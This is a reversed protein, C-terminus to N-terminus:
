ESTSDPLAGDEKRADSSLELGCEPCVTGESRALDYRCRPCHPRPLPYILRALSGALAIVLVGTGLFWFGLLIRDSSYYLDLPDGAIFRRIWSFCFPVALFILILGVIRLIGSVLYRWRVIDRITPNM